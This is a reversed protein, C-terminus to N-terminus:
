SHNAYKKLASFMSRSKYVDENLQRAFDWDVGRLNDFNQIGDLYLTDLIAREKSAYAVGEITKLGVPNLLIENKIKRYIYRYPAVEIIESRGAVLYISTYPQFVIGERALVTYLSIYSPVRLKNGAELPSYASNLAYLGKSIRILEGKKVYYSVAAILNKDPFRGTLRAIDAFSFVTQSKDKNKLIDKIM